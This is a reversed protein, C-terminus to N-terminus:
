RPSSAGFGRGFAASFCSDTWVYELDVFQGFRPAPIIAEDSRRAARGVGTAPHPLEPEDLEDNTLRKIFSRVFEDALTPTNDNRVVLQTMLFVGKEDLPRLIVDSTAAHEADWLINCDNWLKQM